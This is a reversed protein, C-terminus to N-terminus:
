LPLAAGQGQGTLGMVCTLTSHPLVATGPWPCSLGSPFCGCCSLPMHADLPCGVNIVPEVCKLAESFIPKRLTHPGWSSHPLCPGAGLTYNSLLTKESSSSGVSFAELFGLTLLESLSVTLVTHLGLDRLSQLCSM